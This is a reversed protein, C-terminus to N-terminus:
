KRGATLKGQEHPPLDYLGYRLVLVPQGGIADARPGHVPPNFFSLSIEIHWCPNLYVAPIRFYISSGPQLHVPSDVDILNHSPLHRRAKDCPDEPPMPGTFVIIGHTAEEPMVKYRLDSEGPLADLPNGNAGLELTTISNNVMRLWFYRNLKGNALATGAHDFQIYTFPLNPDVALLTAKTTQAQAILPTLLLLAALQFLHM